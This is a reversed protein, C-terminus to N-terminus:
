SNTDVKELWEERWFFFCTRDCDGFDKTGPCYVGDLLVIGTCKKMLFDREDLFKEVRKLVRHTTGCYEWMEEMFSCRKTQNWRDLTAKIEEASRVRVIDGPELPETTTTRDRSVVERKGGQLIESVWNKM